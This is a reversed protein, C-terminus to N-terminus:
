RCDTAFAVEPIRGEPIKGGMERNVRDSDKPIRIEKLEKARCTSRPPESALCAFTQVCHGPGLRALVDAM